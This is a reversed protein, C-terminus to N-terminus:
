QANEAANTRLRVAVDPEDVQPLVLNPQPRGGSGGGDGYVLDESWIWANGKDDNYRPQGIVLEREMTTLNLAHGLVFTPINILPLVDQAALDARADADLMRDLLTVPTFSSPAQRAVAKVTPTATTWDIKTREGPKFSHTIFRFGGVRWGNSGNLNARIVTSANILPMTKQVRESLGEFVLDLGEFEMGPEVEYDGCSFVRDLRDALVEYRGVGATLAGYGTGRTFDELIRESAADFAWAIGAAVETRHLVDLVEDRTIVRCSYM